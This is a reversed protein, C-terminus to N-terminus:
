RQAGYGSLAPIVSFDGGAAPTTSNFPWAAKYVGQEPNDEGDQYYGVSGGAGLLHGDSAELAWSTMKNDVVNWTVTGAEHAATAEAVTVGRLKIWSFVLSNAKNRWLLNKTMTVSKANGINLSFDYDNVNYITNNSFNVENYTTHTTTNNSIVCWQVGTEDDESYLINNSFDIKNGTYTLDGSCCILAQHVYASVHRTSMVRIDSNRVILNNLGYSSRNILHHKMNFRCGDITINEMESGKWFVCNTFSDAWSFDLNKFGIVNPGGMASAEVSSRTGPTDGIIFQNTGSGTYNGIVDAPVFFVTKASNIVRDGATLLKSDGYTAKNVTIDGVMIDCGAQYKPYYTPFQEELKGFDWFDGASTTFSSTTPNMTLLLGSSTYIKFKFGYDFTMGPALMIYYPGEQRAGGDPKTWSTLTASDYKSNPLNTFAWSDTGANYTASFRAGFRTNVDESDPVVMEVRTIESGDTDWQFVTAGNKFTLSTESSSCSAVAFHPRTGAYVTNLKSAVTSITANNIAYFLGLDHTTVAYYRTPGAAPLIDPDISFAITKHTGDTFMESSVTVLDFGYTSNYNVTTLAGNPTKSETKDTWLLIIDGVEWTMKGKSDYGKTAPITATFTVTGSENQPDNQPAVQDIEKETCAAAIGLVAVAFIKSLYKM